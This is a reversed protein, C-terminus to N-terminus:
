GNHNKISFLNFYYFYSYYYRLGVFIGDIIGFDLIRNDFLEFKRNFSDCLLLKM